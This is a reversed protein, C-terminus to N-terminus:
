CIYLAMDKRRTMSGNVRMSIVLLTVQSQVITYTGKGTKKDDVYQGVYVDGNKYELRGNENMNDNKFEGVYVNGDTYRM